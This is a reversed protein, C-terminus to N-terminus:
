LSMLLVGFVALLVGVIQLMSLKEGLIILSLIFTVVPYAATIAIVLSAEGKELAKVMFWYGVTGFAGAVIPLYIEKLPNARISTKMTLTLATAAVFSGVTSLYYTTVTNYYNNSIKLLVGWIGWLLLSVLAYALWSTM